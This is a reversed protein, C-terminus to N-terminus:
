ILHQIANRHFAETPTVTGIADSVSAMCFRSISLWRM